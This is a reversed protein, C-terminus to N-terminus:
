VRRARVRRGFRCFRVYAREDRLTDGAEEHIGAGVRNRNLFRQRLEFLQALRDRSRDEAEELQDREGGSVAVVRRCTLRLSHQHVDIDARLIEAAHQV